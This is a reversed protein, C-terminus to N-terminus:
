NQVVTTVKFILSRQISANEQRQPKEVIMHSTKMKM